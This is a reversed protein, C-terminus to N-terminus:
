KNKKTSRIQKERQKAEKKEAELAKQAAKCDKIEQEIEAVTKEHPVPASKIMKAIQQQLSDIKNQQVVIRRNLLETSDNGEISQKLRNLKEEQIKYQKVLDQGRSRYLNVSDRVSSLLQTFEINKNNAEILKKNLENNEIMWNNKAERHNIANQDDIRENCLKIYEVVNAYIGKEDLVNIFHKRASVYAGKKYAAQGAQYEHQYDAHLTLSFFLVLVLIINRKM